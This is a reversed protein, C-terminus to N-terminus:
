GREELYEFFGKLLLSQTELDAQPLREKLYGAYRNMVEVAAGKLDPEGRELREISATIKAIEDVDASTLSGDLERIKSNLLERLIEAPRRDAGPRNERRWDGKKKWRKVTSPSVGITRGIDALTFGEAHLRAAERILLESRARTIEDFTM